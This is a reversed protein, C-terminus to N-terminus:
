FRLQTQVSVFNRRYSRVNQNSVTESYSYNLGIKLHQSLAYNIGAGVGLLEDHINSQQYEGQGYFGAGSVTIRRTLERSLSASVQYSDFLDKSYASSNLGRRYRLSAHTTEDLDNLLSAEYRTQQSRGFTDQDIFDEGVKLVLQLQKTFYHGFDVALSNNTINTGSSFDRLAFEYGLGVWNADDIAYQVRGGAQNLFSNDLDDRSYGIFENRYTWELLMQSSVDLEFGLYFNNKDTRYRGNNRGFADDFSRPEESREYNDLFNLHMRSSLELLDSARFVVGMNNFSSNNMYLNHLVDAQALFKNRSGELKLDLGALLSQSVDATVNTYAFTVNDDYSTSLQGRTSVEKVYAQADVTCLLLALILGIGRL